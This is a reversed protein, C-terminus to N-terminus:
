STTTSWAVRGLVAADHLGRWVLGAEACGAHRLAQLHWDVALV